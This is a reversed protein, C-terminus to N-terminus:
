RLPVKGYTQRWMVTFFHCLRLYFTNLTDNFLVNGEKRVLVSLAWCYQTTYVPSVTLDQRISKLQECAYRYDEKEKWDAHVM